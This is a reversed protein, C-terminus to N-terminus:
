LECGVEIYAGVESYRSSQNANSIGANVTVYVNMANSGVNSYIPGAASNVASWTGGFAALTANARMPVPHFWTFVINSNAPQFGSIIM